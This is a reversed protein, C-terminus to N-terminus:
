SHEYSGLTSVRPAPRSRRGAVLHVLLGLAAVGAAAWPLAAPTLGAALALGGLASGVASGLYLASNNLALAVTGRQASAQLLRHQQPVQFAWGAAGWALLAVVAGPLAVAALTPLLAQAATVVLLMVGALLRVRGTRDVLPGALVSGLVGGAGWAWLYPAVEHVGGASALVPALYTYLGLSAVAALFSVAVVPAVARDAIATLRARVPVAPGAPVQPLLVALGGLAVAGLATVLWLTARWGTHEALLVGIPVGLVTGASMGGMVLALARGRKEEPVLAAAAATSLASYVGAGAGAVVRAALLAGLSPALATLGNGITFVALAALILLRPRVGSLLGAVLPASIAYALTFVTVLQGALSVRTGIDAALVPLLGAMVYADLGLTFAGLTLLWVKRVASM